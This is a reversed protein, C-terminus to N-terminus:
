SETAVAAQPPGRQAMNLLSHKSVMVHAERLGKGGAQSHAVSTQLTRRPVRTPSDRQSMTGRQNRCDRFWLFLGSSSPLEHTLGSQELPVSVEPPSNKEGDWSPLPIATAKQDPPRCRLLGKLCISHGGAGM